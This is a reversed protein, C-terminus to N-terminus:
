AQMAVPEEDVLQELEAEVDDSAALEVEENGGDKAFAAAVATLVAYAGIFVCLIWPSGGGLEVFVVALLPTLGNSFISGVQYGLSVGSYRLDTPFQEAFWAAQPGYIADHLVNMGVIFVLGLLALEGDDLFAFFPWVAVGIGIAAAIAIRRRGVKDSLWGWLPTSVLSIAGVLLLAQIGASSDGRADKLYSLSYVTLISFWAPQVLRLGITVLVGRPHRKLVELVPLRRVAGAQRIRRFEPADEVGLRIILGIVVLVASALFPIRWAWAQFAEAGLLAQVGWISGTALLLGGASGMQTFSGFLGRRGAPAHEVSLLASGGWEAGASLGQALRLVVLAVVSWVGLTAYGPLLGILFTAVGMLLLSYVLLQKRGIRDGLHGAIIGGLPRAAFGVGYSAFSAILAITPTSEPFFTSGFVLAAAQAYLYFDYWEITTGILSAALVRKRSATLSSAATPRAPAATM